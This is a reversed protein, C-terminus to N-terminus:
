ALGNSIFSITIEVDEAPMIFEYVGEQVFRGYDTDGNVSVYMDGDTIMVTFVSVTEGAEARKPCEDLLDGGSVVSIKYGRGCSCLMVVVLAAALIMHYRKKM